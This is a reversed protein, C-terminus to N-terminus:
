PACACCPPQAPSTPTHKPSSVPSNIKPEDSSSEDGAAQYHKRVREAFSSHKAEYADLAELGQRIQAKLQEAKRNALERTLRTPLSATEATARRTGWASYQGYM